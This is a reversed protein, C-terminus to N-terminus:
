RIKRIQIKLISIERKNTEERCQSSAIDRGIYILSAYFQM